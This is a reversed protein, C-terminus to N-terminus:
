QFILDDYLDEYAEAGRAEGDGFRRSDLYFLRSHVYPDASDYLVGDITDKFEYRFNLIETLSLSLRADNTDSGFFLGIPNTVSDVVFGAADRETSPGIAPLVLYAGENVGWTSLTNGFDAPREELGFDAAPDFLGFVGLTTNVAFRTFNHVASEIDGQLAKNLVASPLGLNGAANDFSQRVPSPLVAGYFQSVPRVAVTDLATNVNHTFRNVPEYPDHIDVGDPAPSCAGLVVVMSSASVLAFLRQLPVDFIRFLRLNM